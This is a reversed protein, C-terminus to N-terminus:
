VAVIGTLNQLESLQKYLKSRSEILRAPNTTSMGQTFPVSKAAGTLVQTFATLAQAVGLENQDREKRRM